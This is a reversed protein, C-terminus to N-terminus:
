YFRTPSNSKPLIALDAAPGTTIGFGGFTRETLQVFCSTLGDCARVTAGAPGLTGKTGFQAAAAIDACLAGGLRGLVAHKSKLALKVTDGHM